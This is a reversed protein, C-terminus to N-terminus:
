EQPLELAKVKRDLVARIVVVVALVLGKKEGSQKIKRTLM